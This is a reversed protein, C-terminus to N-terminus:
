NMSEPEQVKKKVYELTTQLSPIFFAQDEKTDMRYTKMKPLRNKRAQAAQNEFIRAESTNSFLDVILPNKKKDRGWIEFRTSSSLSLGTRTKSSQVFKISSIESKFRGIRIMVWFIQYKM